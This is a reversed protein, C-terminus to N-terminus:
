SKGTGPLVFLDFPVLRLGGKTNFARGRCLPRSARLGPNANDCYPVTTEGVRRLPYSASGTRHGSIVWLPCQRAALPIQTLARPLASMARAHASTRKQGLASM